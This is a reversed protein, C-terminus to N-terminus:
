PSERQNTKGTTAADAATTTTTAIATATITTANTPIAFVQHKMQCVFNNSCFM